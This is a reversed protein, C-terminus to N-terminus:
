HDENLLQNVNISFTSHYESELDQYFGVLKKWKQVALAANLCNLDAIQINHSYENNGNDTFNIRGNKAHDRKGDISTTVAVIGILSDDVLQIGMGAHIFPIKVKELYEIILKKAEGNDISIFVYDFDDLLNISESDIYLNHPVIGRHINSYVGAYYTVKKLRQELLEKSMAGPSRFANHQLMWDGDFLHIEGVPTKSVLDLIYSGTGGLGIIAVKLDKMKDTVLGIGARSSNTDYYQFVSESVKPINVSFKAETVDPDLSKAPASIMKIYTTMKDFYDSYGDKPKSSFTCNVRLKSSLNIVNSSNLIENIIRGDAHCPIEGIFYTVHTTPRITIDGSTDLTSVLTGYSIEKKSNVYPIDHVLLHSDRIELSLGEKWLKQLDSSHSIQAPLM